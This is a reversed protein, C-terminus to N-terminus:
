TGWPMLCESTLHRTSQRRVEFARRAPLPREWCHQTFVLQCQSDHGRAASGWVMTSSCESGARVLVIGTNVLPYATALSFM